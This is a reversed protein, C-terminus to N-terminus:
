EGNEIGKDDEPPPAGGDNELRVLMIDRYAEVVQQYKATDPHVGTDPHYERTLARFAARVIIDPAEQRVGLVSYLAEVSETEEFVRRSIAESALNIGKKVVTRIHTGTLDFIIRDARKITARIDKARDAPM